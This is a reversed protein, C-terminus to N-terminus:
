KIYRGQRMFEKNTQEWQQVLERFVEPHSARVNHMETRDTSIDYLEWQHEESGDSVVKWPGKILARNGWNWFYLFERQVKNGSLAPLLNKGPFPPADASAAQQEVGAAALFTPVFDIVHGRDEVFSGPQVTMGDPWRVILPTSIGGEHAWLKYRRMPTNCVNAWAPGLCLATYESGWRATQDLAYNLHPPLVTENLLQQSSAGNDSLFLVLTNDLEGQEELVALVRGVQEDILDVMAAHIEMKDAQEQKKEASLTDWPVYQYVDEFGLKESMQERAADNQPAHTPIVTPEQESLKWNAPFGLEQQKNFRRERIVDWGEDYVGDYKDVYEEPAKLPFHPGAFSLTAFFPEGAHDDLHERLFQVMRTGIERDMFFDDDMGPRPLGTGDLAHNQPTFYLWGQAFDYARDFGAAHASTCGSAQVHWKGSHVTRYGAANMLQPLPVTWDVYNGAGRNPESGTQTGYYGTMSSSRTPWCIACNYFQTFRVGEDALRDLNPTNIEGGYCGVDSFGLDDAIILLINPKTEAAAFVVTIAAAIMVIIRKKM